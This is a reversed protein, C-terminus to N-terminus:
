IKDRSSARYREPQHLVLEIDFRRRDLVELFGLESGAPVQIKGNAHTVPVGTKGCQDRLANGDVGVHANTSCISAVYRAARSHQCAYQEVSDFDVFPLSVRIIAMNEPVAAMVAAKLGHIFEFSTPRWIHVMSSDVLYDFDSDLRFVRSRVIQLADTAVTILRSKVVGKFQSSRRVATIRKGSADRYRAFYAFMSDPDDLADQRIPLNVAEHLDRPGAAFPDQLPLVAYDPTAHKEGPSYPRPGGEWASMEDVTQQLMEVLADQVGIDVNMKFFHQEDGVFLGVGFEVNKVARPDFDM